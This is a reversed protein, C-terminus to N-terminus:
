LKYILLLAEWHLCQKDWAVPLKNLPCAQSFPLHEPALLSDARWPTQFPSHNHHHTGQQLFASFSLVRPNLGVQQFGKTEVYNVQQSAEASFQVLVIHPSPTSFCVTVGYLVSYWLLLFLNTQSSANWDM